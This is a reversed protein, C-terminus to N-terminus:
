FLMDKFLSWIVAAKIRPFVTSVKLSRRFSIATEETTKQNHRCSFCGQKNNFVRQSYGFAKNELFVRYGVSFHFLNLRTEM